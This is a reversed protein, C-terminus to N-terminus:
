IKSLRFIILLKLHLNGASLEVEVVAEPFDAVVEM